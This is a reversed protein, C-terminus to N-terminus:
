VAPAFVEASKDVEWALHNLYFLLASPPYGAHFKEWARRQWGETLHSAIDADKAFFGDEHPVGLEDLVAKIMDM